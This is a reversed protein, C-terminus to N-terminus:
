VSSAFQLAFPGPETERSAPLSPRAKAAPEPQQRERDHETSSCIPLQPTGQTCGRAPLNTRHSHSDALSASAATAQKWHCVIAAMKCSRELARPLALGRGGTGGLRHDGTCPESAAGLSVGIRLTDSPSQRFRPQRKPHRRLSPFAVRARCASDGRLGLQCHAPNKSFM